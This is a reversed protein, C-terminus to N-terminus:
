PEVLYARVEDQVYTLFKAKQPLLEWVKALNKWRQQRGQAEEVVILSKTFLQYDQVFHENGPEEINVMRWVLKGSELEGAFATAIAEHSFAEIKRCSDCRYTTHFYYAVVQREPTTPTSPAPAEAAPPNAPATLLLSASMLLIAATM